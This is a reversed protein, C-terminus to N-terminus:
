AEAIRDLRTIDALDLFCQRQVTLAPVELGCGAGLAQEDLLAAAVFM